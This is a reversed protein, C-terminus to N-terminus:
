WAQVVGHVVDPVPVGSEPGPHPSLIQKGAENVAVSVSMGPEPGSIASLRNKMVDDVEKNVGAPFNGFEGVVVKAGEKSGGLVESEAQRPAVCGRWAWNADGQIRLVLHVASGDGHRLVPSHCM